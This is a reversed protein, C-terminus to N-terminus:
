IDTRLADAADASLARRVPEFAALLGVTAMIAAVACLRSAAITPSLDAAAIMVISPLSGVAIGLALQRLVRGFISLLLQRPVAGLAVRIGIEDEFQVVAGGAFGPVFSSFTVADIAAIAVAGAV